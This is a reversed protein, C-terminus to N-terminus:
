TASRRTRHRHARWCSNHRSTHCWRHGTSLLRSRIRAAGTAPATRTTRDEEGGTVVLVPDDPHRHIEGGAVQQGLLLGSAGGRPMAATAMGDHRTLPMQRRRALTFPIRLVRNGASSGRPENRSGGTLNTSRMSATASSAMAEKVQLLPLGAQGLDGLLTPMLAETQSTQRGMRQQRSSRPFGVTRSAEEHLGALLRQATQSGRLLVIRTRWSM